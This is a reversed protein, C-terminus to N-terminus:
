LVFLFSYQHLCLLLVFRGIGVALYEPLNYTIVPSTHSAPQSAQQNAPQTTPQRTQNASQAPSTQATPQSAPQSVPSTPQSAPTTQPMTFLSYHICYYVSPGFLPLRFVFNPWFGYHLHLCYCYYLIYVFGIAVVSATFFIM